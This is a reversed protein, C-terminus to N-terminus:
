NDSTCFRYESISYHILFLTICTISLVVHTSNQEFWYRENERRLFIDDAVKSDNGKFIYVIIDIIPRYYDLVVTYSITDVTSHQDISLKRLRTVVNVILARNNDRLRETRM